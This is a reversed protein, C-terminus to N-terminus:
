LDMLDDLEKQMSTRTDGTKKRSSGKGGLAPNRGDTRVVPKKIGLLTRTRTEAETLVQSLNWEPHEAVVENTLAGVTKRVALLDSNASFFERVGERLVMQRQVQEGLFSPLDKYEQPLADERAREYVRQLLGELKDRESLIDDIDDNETLFKPKGPVVAAPTPTTAGTAGVPKAPTALNAAELANLRAILAANQARLSEVSVETEDTEDMTEGTAAGLAEGTAEGPAEGEKGEEGDLGDDHTADDSGGTEDDDTGNGTEDDDVEGAVSGGELEDFLDDLEKDM